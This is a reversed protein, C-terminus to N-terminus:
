GKTNLLTLTVNREVPRDVSSLSRDSWKIMAMEMIRGGTEGDRRTEPIRMTQRFATSLEDRRDPTAADDGEASRRDLHDLRLGVRRQERVRHVGSRRQIRSDPLVARMPMELRAIDANSRCLVAGSRGKLLAAVRDQVMTM